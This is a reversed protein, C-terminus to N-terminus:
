RLREQKDGGQKDGGKRVNGGVSRSRKEELRKSKRVDDKRDVLRVSEKEGVNSDESEVILEKDALTSVIKKLFRRNRRTLRGGGDVKVVYQNFELREVVKGSKNWRRPNNGNQNQILVMDGVKLDPLNRAGGSLAKEVQIFRAALAQERMERTFRWEKRVKLQEVSAPLHDKLNRGFLINSPSVGIDRCPTNRYELLARSFRDCNLSGTATTNDKLLRKMSKVGLEARTNARPYYASSLRQKVGWRKLFMQVDHSVFEPGGDSTIDEPVGFTEFHKRLFKILDKAGGGITQCISPWNSFRDVLVFYTYKGVHAKDCCISQMPYDPCIPKSPVPAPNSPASWNCGSCRRRRSEIDRSMGPWWVSGSARDKMGTIGQHASHLVNLVENRLVEPIVFKHGNYLIDDDVRLDDKASKFELLKGDWLDDSCKSGSGGVKTLEIILKSLVQDKVTESRVRDRTVAQLIETAAIEATVLRELSEIEAQEELDCSTAGLQLIEVLREKGPFRSATDAVKNLAGPVHIIEFNYMLVREKFRRLRPNEIDGLNKDGLLGLLPKHDVAVILNPCGLVFHKAKELAWCVSLFEGEVPSYNKESDRTFRSSCLTIRWGTKCCVPSIPGKCKCIKQLLCFGIGNKSWDTSLVTPLNTDFSKIGKRVAQSIEKKSAEFCDNLEQTWVFDTKPSLLKRFPAMVETKSFAWTVQEVLGFWSRIGSINEPRPFNLISQLLADGPEVGDRMLKFGLYEVEQKGFVFKKRNMLIGGNGCITLYKCTKFFLEELSSDWLISDDVLRKHDQFGRTVEDFRHCYGDGSSLFGQPVTRYRFRGWETLFTTFHRDEEKIPVSHYGNWADCTTRYTGPPVSTALSFPTEGGHTQRAASKNLHRLDVIRRPEGNKKPAIIMPSCWIDETNPPVRECVGLKVDTELSKLVREKFHLPVQYCRKNSMPKAKPDIMLSMPPSRKMLPLPQTNCQNFTSPSYYNIIWDRLKESNEETFEINVDERSPPNPPLVRRPCSCVEDGDMNVYPECKGSFVRPTSEDEDVDKDLCNVEADFRGIKPFNQELIGLEICATKSLFLRDCGDACYAMQRTQWKKGSSSYGYIKLFVGGLLKLGGSNAASIKMNVPILDKKTLGMGYLHKLGIVVMQAGSDVLGSTNFVKLKEPKLVVNKMMQDYGSKDAEMSVFVEPHDEVKIKAWRGFEDIGTHSLQAIMKEKSINYLQFSLAAEESKSEGDDDIVNAQPKKSRCVRAFHGRGKCKNCSSNWARCFKKRSERDRGGEHQYGCFGCRELTPTTMQEESIKNTEAGTKMIIGSSLKASEINQALKVVEEYTLEKELTEGLIKEQMEGDLLSRIMQFAEMKSTFDIKENCDVNCTGCHGHCTISFDCLRAKGSIRSSLSSIKEEETQTIALFEIVKVVNNHKKVALKKIANLLEVESSVVRYGLDHLQRQLSESPCNWLQFVLDEGALGAASVYIKWKTLFFEWDAETADDNITPRVLKEAINKRRRDGNDVNPERKMLEHFRLHIDLAKLVADQTQLGEPTVYECGDLQCNERRAPAM